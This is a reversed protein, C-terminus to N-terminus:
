YNENWVCKKTGMNRQRINDCTKNCDLLVEIQSEKISIYQLVKPIQTILKIAWLLEEKLKNM